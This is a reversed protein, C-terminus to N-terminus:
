QEAGEDYWSQEASECVWGAADAVHPAEWEHEMRDIRRSKPDNLSGCSSCWLLDGFRLVFTWPHRCMAGSVVRSPPPVHPDTLPCGALHGDADANKMM